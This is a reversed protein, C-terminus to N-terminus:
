LDDDGEESVMDEDIDGYTYEIEGFDYWRKIGAKRDAECAARVEDAMEETPFDLPVPDPCSGFKPIFIARPEAAHMSPAATPALPSSGADSRLSPSPLMVERLRSQKAPTHKMAKARQAKVPDVTKTQQRVEPVHSSADPQVPLKAHAPTPPPPPKQTWPLGTNIHGANINEQDEQQNEKDELSEDDDSDDSDGEPVCFTGSGLVHGTRRLEKLFAERDRAPTEVRPAPVEVPATHVRHEAFVNAGEHHTVPNDFMPSPIFSPRPHLDYLSSSNGHTDFIRHRSENAVPPSQQASSPSGGSSIKRKKLPPQENALQDVLYWGPAEEDSDSDDFFEPLLGFSGTSEWPRRAPIDKVDKLKMPQDLQRRKSGLASSDATIKQATKQAWATALAKQDANVDRV